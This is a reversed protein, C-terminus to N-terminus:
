ISFTKKELEALCTFVTNGAIIEMSKHHHGFIWQKPSHQVFLHELFKRTFSHEKYGFMYEVVNAPADHTIVIEPKVRLYTDYVELSEKYSLEENDFWDRGQIRISRDISNAGRIMMVKGKYFIHYDGVYPYNDKEPIYDHNGCIIKLNPLVGLDERLKNVEYEFGLDGVQIIYDETPIIGNGIIRYFDELKGHVDGIVHLKM